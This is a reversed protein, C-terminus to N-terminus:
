VWAFRQVASSPSAVAHWQGTVPQYSGSFHLVPSAPAPPAPYTAASGHIVEGRCCAASLTWNRPTDAYEAVARATSNYSVPSVYLHGLASGFMQMDIRDLAAAVGVGWRLPAGNIIQAIGMFARVQFPPPVNYASAPLPGVTVGGAAADAGDIRVQWSISGTITENIIAAHAIEYDCEYERSVIVDGNVHLRCSIRVSCSESWEGHFRIAPGYTTTYPPVCQVSQVEPDAHSSISASTRDHEYLVDARILAAVGSKYWAGVVVDRWTYANVEAVPALFGYALDAGGRIKYLIGGTTQGSSFYQTQEIARSATRQRVWPESAGCSLGEEPDHLTWIHQEGNVPGPFTPLAAWPAGGDHGICEARGALLVVSVGMTPSIVVEFVGVIRRQPPGVFSSRHEHHVDLVVIARSGDPTVDVIRRQVDYDEADRLVGSFRIQLAPSTVQDLDISNSTRTTAFAASGFEGFRRFQLQVANATLTNGLSLASVLWRRGDPDFWIWGNVAKGGLHVQTAGFTGQLLAYDRWERGGAADDALQEPTREPAVWGPRRVVYVDPSPPAPYAITQGNPLTLTGAASALGHHPLGAATIQSWPGAPTGADISM